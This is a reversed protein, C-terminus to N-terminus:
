LTPPILPTSTGAPLALARLQEDLLEAEPHRIKHHIAVVRLRSSRTRPIGSSEKIIIDDVL